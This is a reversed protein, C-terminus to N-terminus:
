ENEQTDAKSGSTEKEEKAAAKEEEEAILDDLAKQAKKIKGQVAVDEQDLAAEKYYESAKEYWILANEYDKESLADDGKLEADKASVTSLKINIADIEETMDYKTYTKLAKQYTSKAAAFDKGKALSDGKTVNNDAKNLDEKKDSEIKSQQIEENVKDKASQVEDAKAANEPGASEFNKKANDLNRLADALEGEDYKENAKDLLAQAMIAFREYEFNAIIDKIKACLEEEDVLSEETLLLKLESLKNPIITDEWNYTVMSRATEVYETNDVKIKALLTEMEDVTKKANAKEKVGQFKEEYSAILDLYIPEITDGLPSEDLAKCNILTVDINSLKVDNAYNIGKAINLLLLYKEYLKVYDIEEELELTRIENMYSYLTCYSNALYIKENKLDKKSTFGLYTNSVREFNDAAEIYNNNNVNTIGTDVMEWMNSITHQKKFYQFAFIGGLVALILVVPILIVLIKKIIKKRKPNQYVKNMYICAITYNSILKMRQSLIIDEIGTCVDEPESAEEIADLLEPVGTNEWIGRTCLTVIDGDMLKMKKSIFPRFNGPQGLYCFLNHREEHEQIKDLSIEGNDAMTQSLSQDSSQHIIRGTRWHYLRANGSQIWRIKKYDTVLILISAELRIDKTEKLLENHAANIYSKLARKRISKKEHFAAIVASVALEASDRKRDDDIGDAIVYCAYDELEVFAFFDSNKLYSGAESIFKTKFVSNDKRM